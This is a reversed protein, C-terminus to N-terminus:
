ESAQEAASHQCTWQGQLLTIQWLLLVYLVFSFVGAVIQRHQHSERTAGRDTRLLLEFFEEDPVGAEAARQSMRADECIRPKIHFVSKSHLQDKELATGLGNLGGQDPATAM